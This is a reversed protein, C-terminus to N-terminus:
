FIGDKFGKIIDIRANFVKKINDLVGKKSKKRDDDRPNHKKLENIKNLLEDQQKKQRM